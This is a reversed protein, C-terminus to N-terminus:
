FVRTRRLNESGIQNVFRTLIAGLSTPNKLKAEDYSDLFFYAISEAESSEQWEQFRRKQQQTNLNDLLQFDHKLLWELRLFFAAYGQEHLEERIALLEDTKGAGAEVLIVVKDKQILEQWHISYTTSDEGFPEWDFYNEDTGEPEGYQHLNSFTRNLAIYENPM